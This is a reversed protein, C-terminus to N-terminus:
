EVAIQQVHHRGHWAYVKLLKELSLEGDNPHLATRKWSEDPLSELLLAWRTHLARILRLSLDIPITSDPLAAWDDQEYTRLTPHEETLTLKMRTFGNIHADAIHHVVQRRTWGGERYPTDLQEETINAVTEELYDPLSRIVEIQQARQEPTMASNRLENPCPTDHGM